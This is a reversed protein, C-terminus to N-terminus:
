RRMRSSLPDGIVSVNVKQPTVRPAFTLTGSTATYDRGATATGNATAYGVSM